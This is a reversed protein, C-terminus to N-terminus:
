CCLKIYYYILSSVVVVTLIRRLFIYWKPFFNFSLMFEDMIQCILFGSIVLVSGYKWELLFYSFGFFFPIVSWFYFYKNRFYIGGINLSFGWYVAGLFSLILAGYIFSLNIFYKVNDFSLLIYILPFVFPLLGLFGLLVPTFPINNINKLVTM